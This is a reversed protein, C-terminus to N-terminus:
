ISDYTDKDIVKVISHGNSTIDVKTGYKDPMRAKMLTGLLRTDYIPEYTVVRGMSVLPRMKMGSALDFALSELYDNSIEQAKMFADRYIPDDMWQHHSQSSIKAAVASRSIVGCMAFASLFRRQKPSITDMDRLLAVYDPFDDPLLRPPISVDDSVVMEVQRKIIEDQAKKRRKQDM